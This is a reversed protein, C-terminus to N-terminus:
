LYMHNLTEKGSHSTVKLFCFHMCSEIYILQYYNSILFTCEIHKTAKYSLNAHKKASWRSCVHGYGWVKSIWLLAAKSLRFEDQRANSQYRRRVSALHTLWNLITAFSQFSRADMILVQQVDCFGRSQFIIYFLIHKTSCLFKLMFWERWSKKKLWTQRMGYEIVNKQVHIM